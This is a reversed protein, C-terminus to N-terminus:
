QKFSARIQRGNIPQVPRYNNNITPPQPIKNSGFRPFPDATCEKDKEGETVGHMKYFRAMQSLSIRLPEKIVTWTVNEALPPTTLSGLYTFYESKNEPLLSYPTFPAGSTETQGKFPVKNFQDLIKDLHENTSYEAKADLFVGIVALGDKGGLAEGETQYLETNWHVLHLEGAFRQSDVTHECGCNNQEGWHFHFERLRYKGALAGGTVIIPTQDVPTTSVNLGNNLSKWNIPTRDINYGELESDHTANTLDIPSQRTDLQWTNQWKSPGYEKSYDWYGSPREM